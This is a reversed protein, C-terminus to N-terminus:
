AHPRAAGCEPCAAGGRTGAGRLDYACNPCLGRRIRRRRRLAFSTAFLLWLVFAYFATNIAFGPWIPRLPLMRMRGPPTYIMYGSVSHWPRASTRLAVALGSRAPWGLGHENWWPNLPDDMVEQTPPESARSWKPIVVPGRDSGMGWNENAPAFSVRTIGFGNSVSAIWRKTGQHSYDQTPDFNYRAWMGCGWAVAVNVIASGVLLLSVLILYRRM